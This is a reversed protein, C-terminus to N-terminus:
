ALRLSNQRIRSDAELDILSEDQFGMVTYGNPRLIVDLVRYKDALPLSEYAERVAPDSFHQAIQIVPLKRNTAAHLRSEFLGGSTGCTLGYILFSDLGSGSLLDMLGGADFLKENVNLYADVIMANRTAEDDVNQNWGYEFTDFGLGKILTIGKEFNRADEGLLISVIRKRRMREEGGHRGYLYLFVIGGPCLKAVINRLGRKPDSLHHIVGMSLGIDFQEPGIDEQTLDVLRFEVNRIGREAAAEKAISLSVESVDVAIFHTKPLAAAAEILRSGTGTGADLVTKGELSYKAELSFFKLLNLLEFHKQRSGQPSPYPFQAYM